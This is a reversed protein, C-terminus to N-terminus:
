GPQTLPRHRSTSVCIFIAAVDESGRIKFDGVCGGSGEHTLSLQRDHHRLGKLCVPLIKKDELFYSQTLTVAHKGRVETLHILVTRTHIHGGKNTEM